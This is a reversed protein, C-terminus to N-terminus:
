QPPEAGRRTHRHEGERVEAVRVVRAGLLHAAGGFDDVFGGGTQEGVAIMSAVSARASSISAAKSANAPQNNRANRSAFSGNTNKSLDPGFNTRLSLGDLLERQTERSPMRAFQSMMQRAVAPALPSQGSAVGRIAEEKLGDHRQWNREFDLMRLEREGLSSGGHEQAM